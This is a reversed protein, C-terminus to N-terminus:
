SRQLLSERSPVKSVLNSGLSAPRVDVLVWYYPLLLGRALLPQHVFRVVYVTGRDARARCQM